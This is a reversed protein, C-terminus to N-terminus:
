KTQLELRKVLRDILERRERSGVKPLTCANGINLLTTNHHPCKTSSVYEHSAKNTWIFNRSSYNCNVDTCIMNTKKNYSRSSTNSHSGYFRRIKEEDGNYKPKMKKAM